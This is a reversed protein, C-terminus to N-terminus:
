DANCRESECYKQWEAFDFQTLRRLLESYEEANRIKAQLTLTATELSADSHTRLFSCNLPALKKQRKQRLAMEQPFLIVELHAIFQAATSIAQRKLYEPETMNKRFGPQRIEGTRLLDAILREESHTTHFPLQLPAAM